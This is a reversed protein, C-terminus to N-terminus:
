LPAVARTSDRQDRIQMDRLVEGFETKQGSAALEKARRRAREEAPATLFFKAQADPFVVTGTDRGEAVTPGAEGLGRELDLLAARVEGHASVRSAGESIEPTRIEATVDVGALLVRTVGGQPVFSLGLRRAVGAVATADAWDVGQQRAALA